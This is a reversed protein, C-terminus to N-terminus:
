RAFKERLMERQVVVDAIASAAVDHVVENPHQDTPHVWLSRADHGELADLLDLVILGSGSLAAHIKRHVDRLPYDDDLRHLLPFIVVIGPMGHERCIRAIDLLAARSERWPPQSDEYLARYFAITKATQERDRRLKRLLRLIRLRGLGSAPEQARATEEAERRLRKLKRTRPDVGFLPPEADNLVFGLVVVDPDAALGFSELVDRSQSTNYGGVGLDLAQIGGPDRVGFHERLRAATREAFTDEFWVGEGFTFSDGLFVLRASGAPKDIVLGSDSWHHPWEPGRFGLANTVHDVENSSGFYGRPNGDYTFRIVRSPLNLYGAGGGFGEVAAFQPPRSRAAHVRPRGAIRLALEALALSAALGLVLAAASALRPRTM